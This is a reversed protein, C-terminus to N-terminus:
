RARKCHNLIYAIIDRMETYSNPKALLEVNFKQCYEQDAPNKSTSYLIVPITHLHEQNKIEALTEKGDKLPMNIDLVILCPYPQRGDQCQQLYDLVEQGNHAERITFNDIYSNLIEQSLLLDDPDDDAWLILNNM